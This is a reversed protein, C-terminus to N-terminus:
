LVDEFRWLQEYEVGHSCPEGIDPFLRLSCNLCEAATSKVWISVPVGFEDSNYDAETSILLTNKGCVFCSDVTMGHIARVIAEAKKEFEDLDSKWIPMSYCALGYAKYFAIRGYDVVGQGSNIIETIPDLPAKKYKWYNELNNYNTAQLCNVVLPLINQSIFQDLENLRLVYLGKHWVRNRLTNLDVLTQKNDCIVKSVIPINEDQINMLKIVRNLSTQFEATNDNSLDNSQKNKLIELILASNDGDLKVKYALKPHVSSLVDKLLLEFFHHFHFICQLYVEQYDTNDCFLDINNQSFDYFPNSEEVLLDNIIGKQSAVQYTKFYSKLALRLSTLASKTVNEKSKVKGIMRGHEANLKFM